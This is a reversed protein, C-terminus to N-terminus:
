FYIKSKFQILVKNLEFVKNYFLVIVLLIFNKRHISDLKLSKDFISLINPM